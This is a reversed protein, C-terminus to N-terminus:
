NRLRRPENAAIVDYFRKDMCISFLSAVPVCAAEGNNAQIRIDGATREKRGEMRTVQARKCQLDFRTDDISFGSPLFIVNIRQTMM